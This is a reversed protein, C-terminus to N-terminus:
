KNGSKKKSATKREAPRLATITEKTRYGAKEATTLIKELNAYWKKIKKGLRAEKLKGEAVLDITSAFFLARMLREFSEKSFYTVGEYENVGLYDHLIQDKFLTELRNAREGVKPLCLLDSYNLMGKLLQSDLLAQQGDRGSEKLSEALLPDILWDEMWDSTEHKTKDEAFVCALHRLLAWKAILEFFHLRDTKDSPPVTLWKKSLAPEMQAQEPLAEWQCILELDELIPELIVWRNVQQLGMGGSTELVKEIANTLDSRAKLHKLPVVEADILNLLRDGRLTDRMADLLPSLIMERYARQIDPVGEGKLKSELKAWNGDTDFLERFDLLAHYQYAHLHFFLGERAIQKGRRLYELGTKYDRYIVFDGDGTKLALADVLSKHVLHTHDQHGYNIETSQNVWGQTTNYANNYLILAREGDHRNSYAFVNEDVHGEPTFFDYFAFHDVESFLRRRQMLPFIEQEHRWIAHEDVPEDWYARRYEMGYKETFGEIQGHGFMPLGPMTVMMMAVGYYKDDKGFQEVATKEDPNNMFNVFRKLIEPSFELVNKITTRYEANDEMKLMNMFASNYVRHMGLTRVFYGEMLWFAEALLLTNPVERAVREVVERWFEEPIHAEFEEQTMSHESRSPIAGGEGPFPFWLRQYHKKALTMAADFRIIPFQRAVHLITQILAERVDARLHNLQATDNWPLHTGDNGHYIYSVHGSHNDIRKFVVAADRHSWYGDEIQLTVRADDSLDPGTFQYGPFPPHDVQIFWDPHETVWRSCLGFHNPVMDSALHIGRRQAREKLRQLAAEGGLDEAITYDYLSYASSLAEPNGMIQKIKKSASSREWVGILWLGTFGWRALRDLEEDPIEDLRSIPRQYKRSLQDLWVYTSKAILVVNAMWHLDPSFREPEPYSPTRRGESKPFTLVPAPGGGVPGRSLTEERLIGRAVLMRKRLPEPLM